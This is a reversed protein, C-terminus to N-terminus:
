NEVPISYVYSAYKFAGLLLYAITLVYYHTDKTVLFFILCRSTDCRHFIHMSPHTPIIFRVDKSHLKTLNNFGDYNLIAHGKMTEWITYEM